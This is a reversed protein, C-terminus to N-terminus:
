LKNRQFDDIGSRLEDDIEISRAVQMPTHKNKTRRQAISTSEFGRRLCLWARSRGANLAISQM